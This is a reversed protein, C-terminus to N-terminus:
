IHKTHTHTHTKIFFTLMSSYEWLGYFNIGEPDTTKPPQSSIHISPIKTTDKSVVAQTRFVHAM